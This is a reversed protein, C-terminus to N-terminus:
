PGCIVDNFEVAIQQALFACSADWEVECCNPVFSCIMSCCVGDECGPTDHAEQCSGSEPAGCAGFADGCLLEAIYVCDASWEDVCCEPAGLGCVATCCADDECGPTDHAEHCDGAGGCTDIEGDGCLVEAVVACGEDWTASCCSPRIGDCILTCCAEDECGPSGNASYCDGAGAGCAETSACAYEAMMACDADWADSCCSPDYIQCVEECCEVDECGPTGNASHCDGAGPGCSDTSACWEDAYDVCDQTWAESCCEPMDFCVSLCCYTDSCGVGAHAEDCSGATPVCADFIYSADQCEYDCYYGDPPDCDEGEEVIGNGCVAPQVGCSITMTGTGVDGSYGGVRILYTEGATAAFSVASAVSGGGCDDDSCGIQTGAPCGCGEYVALATDYASGCLEVRVTDDCTATYCYWIDAGFEFFGCDGAEDPDLTAGVTTFPYVGDTVSEPSACSDSGLELGEVQCQADCGDGDVTNGDDCQEGLGVEGDGCVAAPPVVIPDELGYACLEDYLAVCDQTWGDTCCSEDANCVYSCCALEACGVDAHVEDCAGAATECVPFLGCSTAALDACATDWATNCCYSDLECVAACCDFDSCGPGGHDVLCEGADPLCVEAPDVPEPEEYFGCFSYAAEVCTGDWAESCCNPLFECIMTCCDVDACGPTGLTEYCDGVAAACVAEPDDLGSLEEVPCGTEDVEAGATTEPCADLDDTVGDEDTDRQAAACGFEDVLPEDEGDGGADGDGDGDQVITDPCLDVDNMVGDGDDDLQSAACGQADVVAGTPTGLCADEHDRVGDGDDDRQSATCGAEDVSSGLLTGPCLDDADAVGDRDTDVLVAVFRAEISEHDAAQVTVPNESTSLETWGAFQWGDAPVAELTVLRGSVTQEVQGDGEVVVTILGRQEGAGPSGASGDAPEQEGAGGGDTVEGDLSQTGANGQGCALWASVGVLLGFLCLWIGALRRATGRTGHM